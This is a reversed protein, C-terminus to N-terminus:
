LRERERKRRKKLNLSGFKESKKGGRTKQMKAAIFTSRAIHFLSFLLSSMQWGERM